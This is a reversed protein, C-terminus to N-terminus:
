CAPRLGSSGPRGGPERFWKLERRRRREGAAGWGMVTGHDNAVQELLGDVAGDVADDFGVLHVCGAHPLLQLFVDDGLLDAFVQASEKVSIQGGDVTRMVRGDSVAHADPDAPEKARAFRVEDLYQRVQQFVQLRLVGFRSFLAAGGLEEIVVLDFVGHQLGVNLAGHLAGSIHDQEVDVGLGVAFCVAVGDQM